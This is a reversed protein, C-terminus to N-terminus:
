IDLYTVRANFDIDADATVDANAILVLFLKNIGTTAGQNFHVKKRPPSVVVRMRVLSREDLAALDMAHVKDYLLTFKSQNDHRKHSLYANVSVDQFLDGFSIADSAQDPYWQVLIVRIVQPIVDDNVQISYNLALKKLFVSDGDRTESTDGQAPDFLDILTATNTITQGTLETDHFKEEAMRSIEKRVIKRITPKRKRRRTKRHPM